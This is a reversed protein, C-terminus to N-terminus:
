RKIFRSAIIMGGGVITLMAAPMIIAYSLQTTIVQIIDLALTQLTDPPSINGKNLYDFIKQTPSGIYLTVGTIILPISVGLVCWGIIKLRNRWSHSILLILLVCAVSCVTLIIITRHLTQVSDQILTIRTQAATTEVSSYLTSLTEDNEASLELPNLHNIKALIIIQLLLEDPIEPRDEFLLEPNQFILSPIFTTLNDKPEELSIAAELNQIQTGPVTILKVGDQIVPETQRQLWSASILEGLSVSSLDLANDKPLIDALSIKDKKTFDILRAYSNTQKLATTYTESRLLTHTVATLIITLQLSLALVAVTIGIIFRKM